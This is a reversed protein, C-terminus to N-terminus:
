SGWLPRCIKTKTRKKNRTVLIDSKDFYYFNLNLHLNLVICHFTFEICHRRECMVHSSLNWETFHRTHFSSYSIVHLSAWKVSTVESFHSWQFSTARWKMSVCIWMKTMDFCSLCSVWSVGLKVSRWALMLPFWISSDFLPFRVFVSDGIIM